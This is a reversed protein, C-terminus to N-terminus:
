IINRIADITRKKVNIYTFYYMLSPFVGLFVFPIFVPYQTGSKTPTTYFYLMLAIGCCLMIGGLAFIAPPIKLSIQIITKNNEEFIHGMFTLGADSQRYLTEDLAMKFSFNGEGDITGEIPLKSGDRHWSESNAKLASIVEAKSKNSKIIVTCKKLCINSEM